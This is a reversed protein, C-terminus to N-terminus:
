GGELLVACSPCCKVLPFQFVFRSPGVVCEVNLGGARGQIPRCILVRYGLGQGLDVVGQPGSRYSHFFVLPTSLCPM